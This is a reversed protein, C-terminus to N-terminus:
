AIPSGSYQPLLLRIEPNRCIRIKGTGSFFETIRANKATAGDIGFQMLKKNSRSAYLVAADHEVRETAAEIAQRVDAGELTLLLFKKLQKDRRWDSTLRSKLAVRDYSRVKAAAWSYDSEGLVGTDFLAFMLSAANRASMPKPQDRNSAVSKSHKHRISKSRVDEPLGGFFYPWLAAVPSCSVVRREIEVLGLGSEQVVKRLVDDVWVSRPVRVKEAGMLMWSILLMVEERSGFLQHAYNKESAEM